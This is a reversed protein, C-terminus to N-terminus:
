TVYLWGHCGPRDLQWFEYVRLHVQWSSVSPKVVWLNILRESTNLLRERFQLCGSFEM